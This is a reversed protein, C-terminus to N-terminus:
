LCCSHKPRSQRAWKGRDALFDIAEGTRSTAFRNLTNADQLRGESLRFACVQQRPQAEGDLQYTLTLRRLSLRGAEAELEDALERLEEAEGLGHVSASAGTQKKFAAPSLPPSDNRTVGIRHYGTGAPLKARVHLECAALDPRTSAQQAWAYAGCGAATLASGAIVLAVRM